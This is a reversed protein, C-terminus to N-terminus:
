VNTYKFTNVLWKDEKKMLTIKKEYVYYNLTGDEGLSDSVFSVTANIDHLKVIIDSVTMSKNIYSNNSPIKSLVAIEEENKRVFLDEGFKITELEKKGEETYLEDVIEDYNNVKTYFQNAKEEKNDESNEITESNDPAEVSFVETPKEYLDIISKVKDIILAEAEEKTLAVEEYIYEITQGKKNFTLLIGMILLLGGALVLLNHKKMNSLNIKLGKM